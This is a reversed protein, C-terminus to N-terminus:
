ANVFCFVVHKERRYRDVDIKETVFQSTICMTTNYLM